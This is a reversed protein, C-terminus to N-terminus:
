RRIGLYHYPTVLVIPTKNIETLEGKWVQDYLKKLDSKDNSSKDKM